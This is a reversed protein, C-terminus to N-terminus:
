LKMWESSFEKVGNLTAERQKRVSQTENILFRAAFFMGDDDAKTAKEYIWKLNNNHSYESSIVNKNSEIQLISRHPATSGASPLQSV